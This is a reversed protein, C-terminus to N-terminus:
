ETILYADVIEGYYATHYDRFGDNEEPYYRDLIAAPLATDQTHKFIVKCELTIPFEKIGPVSIVNPQELTLNMDAIKDHDRGSVTGCYGLIKPDYEGYPINVTFEGTEELISKTYRSERVYAIFVPFCNLCDTM